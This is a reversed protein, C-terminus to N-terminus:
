CNTETWREKEHEAECLGGGDRQLAASSVDAVLSGETSRLSVFLCLSILFLVVRRYIAEAHRQKFKISRSYLMTLSPSFSLLLLSHSPLLVGPGVASGPPGQLGAIQRDGHCM